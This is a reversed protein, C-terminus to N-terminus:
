NKFNLAVFPQLKIFLTTLFPVSDERQLVAYGHRKIIIIISLFKWIILYDYDNRGM